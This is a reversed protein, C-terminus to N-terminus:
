MRFLQEANGHAIKERDASSVPLGDLFARAQVM